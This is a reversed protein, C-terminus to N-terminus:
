ETVLGADICAQLDITDLDITTTTAQDTGADAAPADEVEAEGADDVADDDDMDQGESSLSETDTAVKLEDCRQQVEPLEDEPITMGNIMSQAYVPGSVALAAALAITSAFAKLQM